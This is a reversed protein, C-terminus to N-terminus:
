NKLFQKAQYKFGDQCLKQCEIGETKIVCAENMMDSATIKNEIMTPLNAFYVKAVNDGKDRCVDDASPEPESAAVPTRSRGGPLVISSVIGIGAIVALVKLLGVSKKKPVPIAPSSESLALSEDKESKSGPAPMQRVGCKPCIEAKANIVAACESCFKENPGKSVQASATVPKVVEQLASQSNVNSSPVSGIPVQKVVQQRPKEALAAEVKAYVAGCKPCSFESGLDSPTRQYGCKLCNTKSFRSDSTVTVKQAKEPYEQKEAGHKRRRVFFILVGALGILAAIWSVIRVNREAKRRAKEELRAAEEAKLKAEEAVRAAEEAKLRADEAVRAAEEAKRKAEEEVRISENTQESKAGEYEALKTKAKAYGQNASLRTWRIAEAYDQGVGVGKFYYQGLFYQSEAQGQDAALRFWRASEKYDEAVGNGSLFMMGLVFQAYADGQVALPRLVRMATTYDHNNFALVGENLGAIAISPLLSFSLSLALLAARISKV